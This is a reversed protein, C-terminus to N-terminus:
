KIVGVCLRDQEEVKGEQRRKLLDLVFERRSVAFRAAKM